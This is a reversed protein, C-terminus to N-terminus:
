KKWRNKEKLIDFLMKEAALRFNLAFFFRRETELIGSMMNYAAGTTFVSAIRVIDALRDRNVIMETNRTKQVMLIDRFFSQMVGLMPVIDEKHAELFDAHASVADSKQDCLKVCVDLAEERLALLAKDAYIREAEDAFGGSLDALLAATDGDVGLAKEIRQPADPEPAVHVAACRSAITPLVGCVSRALLLLVANEPPEELTKLMSNGAAPTMGDANEVVVARCVGEYPEQSVFAIAERFDDVRPASMRMVDVHGSHVKRCDACVGCGNRKCYLKMLFDDALRRAVDPRPCVILYAGTRRNQASDLFRRAAENV